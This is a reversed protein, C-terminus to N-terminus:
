LGKQEVADLQKQSFVGRRVLQDCLRTGDKTKAFLTRYSTYAVHDRLFRGQKKIEMREQETQIGHDVAAKDANEWSFDGGRDSYGLARLLFTMYDHYRLQMTSGFQTKNIGSTYGQKYAYGVYSNAWAPVDTFPHKGKYEKAEAEDGLLRILMVIGEVRTAPRTLEYGNQSGQFLGLAHLADAYDTYQTNETQVSSEGSEFQGSIELTSDQQLILEAGDEAALYRQHSVLAHQVGAQIGTSLNIWTGKRIVAKGSTLIVETGTQATVTHGVGLNLQSSKGLAALVQTEVSSKLQTDTAKAALADIKKQTEGLNKGVTDKAKERVASIYTNVAYSQSVLSDGTSLAGAVTGGLFLALALWVVPQKQM